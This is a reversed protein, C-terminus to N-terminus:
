KAPIVRGSAVLGRFSGGPDLEYITYLKGAETTLIVRGKILERKTIALWKDKQENTQLRKFATEGGPQIGADDFRIEGQFEALAVVARTQEDYLSMTATQGPLTKMYFSVAFAQFVLVLAGFFVATRSVVALRKSTM